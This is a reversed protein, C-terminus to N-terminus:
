SGALLFGLIQAMEEATKGYLKGLSVISDSMRETIGVLDFQTALAVKAREM